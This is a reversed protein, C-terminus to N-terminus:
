CWIREAQVACPKLPSLPYCLTPCLLRCFLTLQVFQLPPRTIQLQSPRPGPPAALISSISRPTRPLSCPARAGARLDAVCIAHTFFFTTRTHPRVFSPSTSHPRRPHGEISRPACRLLPHGLAALCLQVCRPRKAQFTMIEGFETSSSHQDQSHPLVVNSSALFLSLSSASPPACDRRASAGGFLYRKVQSRPLSHAERERSACRREVTSLFCVIWLSICQVWLTTRDLAPFISACSASRPKPLPSPGGLASHGTLQPAVLFVRPEPICGQQLPRHSAQKYKARQARHIVSRRWQQKAPGRVRRV